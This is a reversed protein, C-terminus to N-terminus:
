NMITPLYKKIINNISVNCTYDAKNIFEKTIQSGNYWHIGITNEKVYNLDNKQFLIDMQNWRYPYVDNMSLNAFHLNPFVKSIGNIDGFAKPYLLNTASMYIKPNFNEVLRELLYKYFKSNPMGLLMGTSFYRDKDDTDIGGYYCIVSEISNFDGRIIKGNLNLNNM